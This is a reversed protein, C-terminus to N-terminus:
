CAANANNDSIKGIALPPKANVLDESLAMTKKGKQQKMKDVLIQAYVSMCLIAQVLGGEYM